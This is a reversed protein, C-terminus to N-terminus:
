NVTEKIEETKTEKFEKEIEEKLKLGIVSSKQENLAVGIIQNSEKILTDNHTIAIFQNKRCIEKIMRAMKISNPKDLAADSEDFFYFPAPQYLQIAFLFALATLSKEGGSMSDIGKVKEAVHRAEIMLGSDLPDSENSLKLKGEGEALSFYMKNFNSNIQNFCENFVNIRKVEIKDIMELVAIREQELKEAKKRIELLEEAFVDFSDIAKMNIAGLKTINKEIEPLSQKLEALEIGQMLEIGEFEKREEELDTMRVENKSNEIELANEEKELKDTKEEHIRIRENISELSKQETEKDEYFHRSEQTQKELEINLERIRKNLEETRKEEKKIGEELSDMEKMSEEIEKEIENVSNKKDKLSNEISNENLAIEKLKNRLENLEEIAQNEEMLVNRLKKTEEELKEKEKEIKRIKNNLEEKAEGAKKLEKQSKKKEAAITEEKRMGGAERALSIVESMEKLIKERVNKLEKIRENLEKSNIKKNLKKIGEEVENMKKIAKKIGESKEKLGKAAKNEKLEELIKETNSIEKELSGIESNKQYFSEKGKGLENLCEELGKEAKGLSERLGTFDAKIGTSKEKEELANETEKKEEGLEQLRKKSEKEKERIAEKKENLSNMRNNIANIHEKKSNIKEEALRKDSKVEELDIGIGAYTKQNASLIKENLEEVRKRTEEEKAKMESLKKEISNREKQLVEKKQTFENIEKRIKGIEKEVISAKTKKLDESLRQYELAAERERQLENLYTEREKLVIMVERIRRDVKDLEKIAEEKKEDFERIGALEDIIERRQVSNMEIIRTVDGQVVINYGDAKIGLEKLLSTIEGLSSRKGEMRFVSKGERDVERSIVYNKEEGALEMEVLAYSDKSYHNVLDTLKSARLMKLSTIGLVFMLADLINSKGSGNSGAIATFGRSFPITAKNFSKFNKLRLKSIKIM